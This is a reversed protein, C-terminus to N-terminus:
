INAYFEWAEKLLWIYRAIYIMELDLRIVEM